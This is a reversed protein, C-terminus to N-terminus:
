KSKSYESKFDKGIKLAENGFENIWRIGNAMFFKQMYNVPDEIAKKIDFDKQFDQKIRFEMILSLIRRDQAFGQVMKRTVM